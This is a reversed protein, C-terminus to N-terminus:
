KIYLREEISKNTKKELKRLLGPYPQEDSMENLNEGILPEGSYSLEVVAENREVRWQDFVKEMRAWKRRSANLM